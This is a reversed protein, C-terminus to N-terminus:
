DTCLMQLPMGLTNSMPRINNHPLGADRSAQRRCHQHVRACSQPANPSRKRNGQVMADNIELQRRQGGLQKLNEPDIQPHTSNPSMRPLGTTPVSDLERRHRAQKPGSKSLRTRPRKPAWGPELSGPDTRRRDPTSGFSIRPRDVVGDPPPRTDSASAPRQGADIQSM